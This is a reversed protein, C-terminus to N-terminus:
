NSVNQNNIRNLAIEFYKDDKEIRTSGFNYDHIRQIFSLFENVGMTNKANLFGTGSEKKWFWEHKFMKLNSLRPHSSFPESGFLCIAGNDKIVRKLESWMLELPIIIDWRCETTGYLPDCLIM